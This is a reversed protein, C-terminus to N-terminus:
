NSMTRVFEHWRAAVESTQKIIRDEAPDAPWFALAYFDVIAGDEETTDLDWGLQM